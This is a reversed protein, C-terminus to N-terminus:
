EHHHLVCMMANRLSHLVLLSPAGQVSAGPDTRRGGKRGTHQPLLPPSLRALSPEAHAWVGWVVGSWALFRQYSGAEKWSHWSFAWASSPPPWELRSHNSTLYTTFYVKDEPHVKLPFSRSFMKPYMHSTMSIILTLHLLPLFTEMVWAQWDVCFVLRRPLWSRRKSSGCPLALCFSSARPM